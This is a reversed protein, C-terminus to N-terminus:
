AAIPLVGASFVSTFGDTNESRTTAPLHQVCAGGRLTYADSFVDHSLWHHRRRMMTQQKGRYLDTVLYM